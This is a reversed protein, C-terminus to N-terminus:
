ETEVLSISGVTHTLSIGVSTCMGPVSCSVASLEEGLAGTVKATLQASWSRGNWVEATGTPEAGSELSGIATCDNAAPCSVGSLMGSVSGGVPELAWAKGSWTEAMELTTGSKSEYRGVAACFRTSACSVGIFAATKAGAPATVPQDAWVKGNWTVILPLTQTKTQYSGAAVCFTTSICSISELTSSISGAPSTPTAPTWSTGSSAEVLAWNAFSATGKLYSGVALCKTAVPCSVGSLQSGQSGAPQPASEVAWRSGDWVEALNEEEGTPGAQKLYQGVATCANPSTCSVSSFDDERSSSPTPTTLIKWSSGAKEEALGGTEAGVAMCAGGACSVGNLSGAAAGSPNPTPKLVWASGGFAEAFVSSAQSNFVYSDGVTMCASTSACAVDALSTQNTQSPSPAAEATWKSGSLKEILPLEPFAGGPGPKTAMAVGVATCSGATLCTVGSLALPSTGTPTTTPSSQTAWKTGNWSYIIPAARTVGVATCASQSPCSVSSLLVFPETTPPATEVTWKAGNWREFLPKNPEEEGVATCATPSSCSAKYLAPGIGPLSPTPLISWSTGKWSEALTGQAGVQKTYDGVALCMTTGACAVGIIYTNVVGPPIPMSQLQWKSGNWREAFPAIRDPIVSGYGVATCASASACSISRLEAGPPASMTQMVWRSGNWQMALAAFDGVSNVYHGVAFCDNSAPCTVASLGTQVTKPTGGPDVTWGVTPLTSAGFAAPSVGSAILWISGVLALPASLRPRRSLQRLPM